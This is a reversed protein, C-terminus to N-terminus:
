RRAITTHAVRPAPDGITWHADRTIDHECMEARSSDM